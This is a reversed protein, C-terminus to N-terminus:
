QFQGFLMDALVKGHNNGLCIVICVAALGQDFIHQFVAVTTTWSKGVGAIDSVIIRVSEVRCRLINDVM